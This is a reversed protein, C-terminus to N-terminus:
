PFGNNRDSAHLVLQFLAQISGPFSDGSPMPRIPLGAAFANVIM